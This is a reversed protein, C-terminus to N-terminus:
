ADLVRAVWAAGWAVAFLVPLISIMVDVLVM